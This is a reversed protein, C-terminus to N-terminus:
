AESFSSITNKYKKNFKKNLQELLELYADTKTKHFDIAFWTEFTQIVSHYKDADTVSKKHNELDMNLVKPYLGYKSFFKEYVGFKMEIPLRNFFDIYTGNIFYRRNEQKKIYNGYWANFYEKTNNTLINSKM